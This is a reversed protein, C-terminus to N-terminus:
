GINLIRMFWKILRYILSDNETHIHEESDPIDVISWADQMSNILHTQSIYGYGSDGWDSGWSNKFKFMGTAVNYGVVTVLHLGIASGDVTVVDNTNYWANYVMLSIVFPGNEQLSKKMENLTSLRAYGKIRNEGAFKSADPCEDIVTNYPSCEETTVGVNLLLKMADRPHSGGTPQKIRDYIFRPSLQLSEFYEKMACTAFGVCSPTQGQNRVELMKSTYDITLYEYDDM